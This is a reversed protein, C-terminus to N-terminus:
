PTQDCTVRFGINTSGATQTLDLYLPSASDSTTLWSGGRIAGFTSNTATFLKGGNAGGNTDTLNGVLDYVQKDGDFASTTNTASDSRFLM